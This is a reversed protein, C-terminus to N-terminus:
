DNKLRNILDKYIIETQRENYDARAKKMAKMLELTERLMAKEQAIKQILEQKTM